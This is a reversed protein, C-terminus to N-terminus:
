SVVLTRQTKLIGLVTVIKLLQKFGELARQFRQVAGRLTACWARWGGKPQGKVLLGAMARAVGM